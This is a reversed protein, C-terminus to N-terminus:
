VLGSAVKKTIGVPAGDIVYHQATTEIRAHGLQKQAKRIDDKALQTGVFRRFDHPKINECGAKEAYRKVLEWASVRSIQQDNIRSDGRGDSGTFIFESEIGAASRAQLWVQIASYVVADLDRPETDAKNKGAIEVVWGATNDEENVAWHIQSRTLTVAETIRMGCAALTLLLARHMKGALTATDPMAIIAKMQATSIAVRAHAKRRDKNAVQRLGKVYKFQEALEHTIYGQQAAEAITAKVSSLRLNIASVSYHQQIGDQHAFGHEYLSQRWRALTAPQMAQAFSGAFECYNRFHRQYQEITNPSKQGALISTDFERAALELGLPEYKAVANM